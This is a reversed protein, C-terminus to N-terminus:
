DTKADMQFFSRDLVRSSMVSCSGLLTKRYLPESIMDITCTTASCHQNSTTTTGRVAAITDTQDSCICNTMIKGSIFSIFAYPYSQLLIAPLNRFQPSHSTHVRKRLCTRSLTQFTGPLSLASLEKGYGQRKRRRGNRGTITGKTRGEGQTKNKKIWDM